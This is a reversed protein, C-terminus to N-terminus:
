TGSFATVQGKAVGAQSGGGALVVAKVADLSPPLEVPRNANESTIGLDRLRGEHYDVKVDAFVTEVVPVCRIGMKDEVKGVTFGPTGKEVLFASIRRSKSNPDTVAFVTYLDAAGGNTTM